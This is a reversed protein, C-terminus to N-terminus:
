RMAVAVVPISMGACQKQREMVPTAIPYVCLSPTHQGISSRFVNWRQQKLVSAGETTGVADGVPLGVDLGLALGDRDGVAVTKMGNM